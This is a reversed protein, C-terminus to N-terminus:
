HIGFGSFSASLTRVWAEADMTYAEDCGLNQWAFIAEMEVCDAFYEAITAYYAAEDLEEGVANYYSTTCNGEMDYENSIGAILIETLTGDNLMVARDESGNWEWGARMFDSFLYTYSGSEENYYVPAKGVILDVQSAGEGTSNECRLLQEGDESVEYVNTTTYIGTGECISVLLELRGNQNLDTIAYSYPQYYWEEEPLWQEREAAILALQEEQSLTEKETTTETPETQLITDETSMEQTSETTGETTGLNVSIGPLEEEYCATLACMLACVCLMVLIRKM